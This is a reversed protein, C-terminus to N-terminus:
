KNHLEELTAILNELKRGVDDVERSADYLLDESDKLLMRDIDNVLDRELDIFSSYLKEFKKKHQRIITRNYPNM